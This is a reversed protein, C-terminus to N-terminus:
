NWTPIEYVEINDMKEDWTAKAADSGWRLTGSPDQIAPPDVQYTAQLVGDQYLRIASAGSYPAAQEFEWEVEEAYITGNSVATGQKTCKAAVDADEGVMLKGDTDRGLGGSSSWLLPIAVSPTAQPKYAMKALIKRGRGSSYTPGASLTKTAYGQGSTGGRLSYTGAIPTTSSAAIQTGTSSTFESLDGTELDAAFLQRTTM